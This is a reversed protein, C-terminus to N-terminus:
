VRVPNEFITFLSTVIILCKKGMTLFINIRINKGFSALFGIKIQKKPKLLM